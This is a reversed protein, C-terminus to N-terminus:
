LSYSLRNTGRPCGGVGNVDLALVIQWVGSDGHNKFNSINTDEGAFIGTKFGRNGFADAFNNAVGFTELAKCDVPSSFFWM